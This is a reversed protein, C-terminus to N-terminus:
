LLGMERLAEQAHDEVAAMPVVYTHISFIVAGCVPLKLLCQREVRMFNATHDARRAAESRPHFLDPKAYTLYNARMVPLGPRIGDFLRQVRAGLNADYIEVPGHVGMLGRGVKETLTWSAPFCLVGGLLGHEDGLAGHILLDEQVLRRAVILPHDSHRAVVVGDPRVIQEAGVEYGEGLSAVVLDLVECAAAEVGVLATVEERRDAILQDSLAMQGAFAEDRVLWDGPEIPIIGPLRALPPEMWPYFPLCTQCTVV